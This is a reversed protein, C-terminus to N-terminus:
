RGVRSRLCSFLDLPPRVNAFTDLHLRLHTSLRGQYVGVIEGLLAIVMVIMQTVLM